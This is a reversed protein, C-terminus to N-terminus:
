TGDGRRRGAPRDYAGLGTGRPTTGGVDRGADAIGIPPLGQERRREELIARVTEPHCSGRELAAAVARDTEDAGHMDLLGALMRVCSSVNRGDSGARALMAEARPVARLLRDRVSMSRAQRKRVAIARAHEPDTVSRRRDYSRRHHAVERTGDLIRVTDRDAALTLRAKAFDPPVSYENRDFRAHCTRDIRAPRIEHHPFPAPPLATLVERERAFADRVLQSDDDPWPREAAAGFCWDRAAANLEGLPATIDRGAFFGTRAFGIRREVRGKEQPRGPWAATPEFAYHAALALLTPHFTVARGRRELVASKLNDYLLRRPVGGLAEFAEVHGQLFSGMRADHFLSLFTQRSHSLTMFFGVLRREARGIRVRGFEAWDVQAQEAPLFRLRMAPEPRRAPRLGLSRLAHRFHDEGGSYGRAAVQRWLTSAPLDPAEELRERIFPLFPDILRARPRREQGGARLARTVTGHHVGLHRAITGVPWGEARSLRVIRARTEGDIAM